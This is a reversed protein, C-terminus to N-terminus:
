RSRTGPARRVFAFIEEATREAQDAESSTPVSPERQGDRSILIAWAGFIALSAWGFALNALATLGQSANIATQQLVVASFYLILLWRHVRLNRPEPLRIRYFVLGTAVLFVLSATALVRRAVFAARFAAVHIPELTSWEGAVPALSIALAVATGLLYAWVGVSGLRPYRKTSNRYVETGIAWHLASIPFQTWAWLETYRLSPNPVQLLFIPRAISAVLFLLFWLYARASGTLLIRVM